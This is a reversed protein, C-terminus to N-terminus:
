YRTKLICKHCKKCNRTENCELWMRRTHGSSIGNKCKMYSESWTGRALIVGNRLAFGHQVKM